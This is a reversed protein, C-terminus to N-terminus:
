CRGASRRSPSRGSACCDGQVAAHRFRDDAAIAGRHSRVRAETASQMIRLFVDKWTPRIRPGAFSASCTRADLRAGRHAGGEAHRHARLAGRGGGPLAHDARHHPRRPEPADRVAVAGPAARRGRGRHARGARDGAAQAGAGAGGARAAEHRGLALAHQRRGQRHSRPPADGRRDLRRQARLGFYGSQIRLTERVTFFPDFVLEQPVVGLLRRARRYDAVVDAGM